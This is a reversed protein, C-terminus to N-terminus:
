RSPCSTEPPHGPTLLTCSTREHKVWVLVIMLIGAFLCVFSFILVGVATGLVEKPLQVAM